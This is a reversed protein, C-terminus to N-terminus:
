LRTRCNSRLRVSLVRRLRHTTHKGIPVMADRYRFCSSREEWVTPVSGNKWNHSDDNDSVNFVFDLSRRRAGRSQPFAQESTTPRTSLPWSQRFVNTTVVAHHETRNENRKGNTDFEPDYWAISGPVRQQREGSVVTRREVIADPNRLWETIRPNQRVPRYWKLPCLEKPMTRTEWRVPLDDKYDVGDYGSRNLHEAFFEPDLHFTSGLCEILVPSLDEVLLVRTIIEPDSVNKMESVREAYLRHNNLHKVALRDHVKPEAPGRFYDICTVAGVDKHRGHEPRMVGLHQLCDILPEIKQWYAPEQTESQNLRRPRQEDDNDQDSNVAPAQSTSGVTDIDAAHSEASVGTGRRPPGVSSRGSEPLPVRLEPATGAHELQWLSGASARYLTSDRM